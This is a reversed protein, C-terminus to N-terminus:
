ADRTNICHIWKNLQTLVRWFTWVYKRLISETQLCAISKFLWFFFIIFSVTCTKITTVLHEVLQEVLMEDALSQVCLKTMLFFRVKSQFHEYNSNFHVYCQKWISNCWFSLKETVKCYYCFLMITVTTQIAIEHSKISRIAFKFTVVWCRTLDVLLICHSTWCLTREYVM